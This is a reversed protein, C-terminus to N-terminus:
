WFTEDNKSMVGSYNWRENTQRFYVTAIAPNEPKWKRESDRNFRCGDFAKIENKTFSLCVISNLLLYELLSSISSCYAKRSKAPTLLVDVPLTSLLSVLLLLLFCFTRNIKLTAIMNVCEGWHNNNCRRKTPQECPHTTGRCRCWSSSVCHQLVYMTLESRLVENSENGNPVPSTRITWDWRFCGMRKVEDEGYFPTIINTRQGFINSIHHQRHLQYEQQQQKDSMSTTCM